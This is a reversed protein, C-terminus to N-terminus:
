EEAGSDNGCIFFDADRSWGLCFTNRIQNLGVCELRFNYLLPVLSLHVRREGSEEFLITEKLRPFASQIARMGWEAAQRLSTAQDCQVIDLPTSCQNYNQASKILFPNDTSAFASDVVCKGGTRSYADELDECVAGWEALTSDHVSGPANVVCNIIRGDVAFVFLNTIFHGAKWGNYFMSQEDLDDCNEFALKLGDAFCHVEHLAPHKAKVVEKYTAIEDDTPMTVRAQNNNWLVLTLGRRGFKLWANLHTGTFGFWGQLICEPGRFRFWTLVLGLCTRADVIRRVGCKKRLKKFTTGDQNSTWPTFNDFWPEFLALLERFAAHDHGTTTILSQDNGSQHLHEWPSMSPLVLASRPIRRDRRRRGELNLMHRFRKQQMKLLMALFLIRKRRHRSNAVDDDDDSDSNMNGIVSTAKKHKHM